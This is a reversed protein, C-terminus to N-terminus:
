PTLNIHALGDIESSKVAKTVVFTFYRKLGIDADLMQDVLRQYSDVDACSFKLFYDVGGGVSWCDTIEPTAAVAAEFRRFDAARHSGLEAQM